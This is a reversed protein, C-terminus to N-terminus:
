CPQVADIALDIRFCREHGTEAECVVVSAVAEGTPADRELFALAAAEFSSEQVVLGSRVSEEVFRVHFARLQV